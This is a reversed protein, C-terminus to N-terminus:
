GEIRGKLANRVEKHYQAEQSPYLRAVERKVQAVANQLAKMTLYKQGKHSCQDPWVWKECAPCYAQREGRKHRAEADEFKQLYGSGGPNDSCCLMGNKVPKCTM